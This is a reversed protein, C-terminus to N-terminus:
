AGSAPPPPAPGPPPAEGPTPALTPAAAAPPAAAHAPAPRVVPLRVVLRTGGTPAREALVAGGHLSVLERVIALGLGSGAEKRAPRSRGVYLRDFVHPLDEEEIGPGDDAVTLWPGDADAGVAVEVRNSAFKLANEVLNAAVQALRDPDGQVPVPGDGAEAGLELGAAAATAASADVARRAVQALDLLQPELRFQRAELRALDLLDRVLRELRWAEQQIVAAGRDVDTLAGDRLADAYGRISTLPTRLDHSISLLFRQEALRSRELSAALLNLSRALRGLEDPEAGAPPEPLRVSLDGAAMRAAASEAAVVPRALRRGLVAAVAVGLAVALGAAVLLWGRVATVPSTVQRTLLAVVLGGDAEGGAGPAPGGWGSSLHPVLATAAWVEGGASGSLVQGRSLADVDLRDPAGDPLSRVGGSRLAGGPLVTACSVTNVQLVRRLIAIDCPDQGILGRLQQLRGVVDGELGFGRAGLEVLQQVNTAQARLGQETNRRATARGLGVTTLMAVLLTAVVVGVIALTLRRTM